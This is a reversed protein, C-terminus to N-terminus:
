LFANRVLAEILDPQVHFMIPGFLKCAIIASCIPINSVSFFFWVTTNVRWIGFDAEICRKLCCGQVIMFHYIKINVAGYFFVRKLKQNLLFDISCFVVRGPGLGGKEKWYFWPHFLALVLVCCKWMKLEPSPITKIKQENQGLASRLVSRRIPWRYASSVTSDKEVAPQKQGFKEDKWLLTLKVVFLERISLVTTQM